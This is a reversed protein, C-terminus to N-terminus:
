FRKSGKDSHACVTCKELYALTEVASIGNKLSPVARVFVILEGNRTGADIKLKGILNSRSDREAQAQVAWFLLYLSFLSHTCPLWLLWFSQFLRSHTGPCSRSLRASLNGNNAKLNQWLIRLNWNWISNCQKASHLGRQMWGPPEPWQKGYCEIRSSRTLNYVAIVSDEQAGKLPGYFAPACCLLETRHVRNNVLPPLM